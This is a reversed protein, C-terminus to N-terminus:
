HLNLEQQKIPAKGLVKIVQEQDGPLYFLFSTPYCVGITEGDGRWWSANNVKYQVRPTLNRTMAQIRLIRLRDM